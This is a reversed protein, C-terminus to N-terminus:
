QRWAVFNDLKWRLTGFMISIFLYHHYFFAFGIITDGLFIFICSILAQFCVMLWGVLWGCGCDAFLHRVELKALIQHM